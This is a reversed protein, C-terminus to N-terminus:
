PTIEKGYVQIDVDVLNESTTNIYFNSISDVFDQSLPLIIPITGYNPIEIEELGKMMKLNFVGTSKIIMLHPNKVTSLSFEVDLDTAQLEISQELKTNLTFNFRDNIQTVNTGAVQLAMSFPITM